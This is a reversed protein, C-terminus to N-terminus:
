AYLRKVTLAVNKGLNEATRFGTEDGEIGEPHGSWLNGGFHSTPPADPVVIMGHILASRAMEMVTLEQGGHRSRGVSLCGAVLNAFCFGNRRFSVSRDFFAKMQSTMGGFYVPSAFVIGKISDDKLLPLLKETFDDKQSCTLKKRCSGCDICGSFSYEALNVIRTELDSQAIVDMCKKLGEMTTGSKKKPSSCIGLVKMLKDEQQFFSSM